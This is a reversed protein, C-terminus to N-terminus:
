ESRDVWDDYDDRSIDVSLPTGARGLSRAARGNISLHVAGADTGELVLERGFDLQLHEGADLIRAIVQRGDVTVQLACRSSVTLLVPVEEATTKASEDFSGAPRADPETRVPSSNRDVRSRDAGRVAVSFYFVGAAIPVLAGFLSLAARLRRPGKSVPPPEPPLDYSTPKRSPLPALPPLDDPYRALFARLVVEPNLGIERAYARVIARRYLGGPLQTIRDAELAELSRTSLKTADAIQRLSIGATERAARLGAGFSHSEQITM